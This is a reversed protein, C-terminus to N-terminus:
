QWRLRAQSPRRNAASPWPSRKRCPSPQGRARRWATTGRRVKVGRKGVFKVIAVVLLVFVAVVLLVFPNLQQRVLVRSGWTSDHSRPTEGDCAGAVIGGGVAVAEPLADVVEAGHSCCTCADGCRSGRHEKGEERPLRGHGDLKGEDCCQGDDGDACARRGCNGRLGCSAVGLGTHRQLPRDDDEDARSNGVQEEANGRCAEDSDARAGLLRHTDDSILALCHSVFPGGLMM